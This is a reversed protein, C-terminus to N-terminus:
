SEGRAKRLADAALARARTEKWPADGDRVDLMAQIARYLEPAAAALKARERRLERSDTFWSEFIHGYDDGRRVCVDDFDAEWTEEWPRKEESM